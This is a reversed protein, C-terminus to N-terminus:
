RMVELKRRLMEEEGLGRENGLVAEEWSGYVPNPLIIWRSGWWGAFPAALQRREAFSKKAPIFDNLDDGLLMLVRFQNAIFARRSSKDSSDWEPRLGRNFVTERDASLPFGQKDLNDRTAQHVEAKRNTVFFVTVGRSAAYQTFERAGPIAEARAERCWQHWSVEEYRRKARISQTAYPSNDLVTEDVDLIIAPPLHSFDGAQEPAATWSPDALAADLGQRAAAYAQLTTARYEEATQQWLHANLVDYHSVEAAPPAVVTAVKGPPATACGSAFAAGLSLLLLGSARLEAFRTEASKM